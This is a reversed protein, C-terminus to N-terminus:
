TDNEILLLTGSQTRNFLDIIDKNSFLLCGHSNPSGLRDEQNTGHLYVYRSHTDIGAGSNHGPEQGDLWLIRTTILNKQQEAEPMEWYRQGLSQRGRFVTGLPASDGIREAIRHLGTPTGLSNEVCSPPRRSSSITYVTELTSGTFFYYKQERLSAFAHQNTLEMGLAACRERVKLHYPHLPADPMTSIFYLPAIKAFTKGSDKGETEPM